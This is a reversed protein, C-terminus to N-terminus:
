QASSIASQFDEDTPDDKRVWAGCLTVVRLECHAVVALRLGGRKGCGPLQWRVKLSKGGDPAGGIPSIQMAKTDCRGLNFYDCLTERLALKTDEYGEPGLLRRVGDIQSRCLTTVLWKITEPTAAVPITRETHGQANM